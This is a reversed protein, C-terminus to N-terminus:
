LCTFNCSYRKTIGNWTCKAQSTASCVPCNGVAAGFYQAYDSFRRAGDATTFSYDGVLPESPLPINNGNCDVASGPVIDFTLYDPNAVVGVTAADAFMIRQSIAFINTNVGVGGASFDVHSVLNNWFNFVNQIEPCYQATKKYVNRRLSSYSFIMHKQMMLGIM